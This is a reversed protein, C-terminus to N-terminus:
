QNFRKYKEVRYRDIGCLKISRRVSRLTNFKKALGIDCVFLRQSFFYKEGCDTSIKLVYYFDFENENDVYFNM